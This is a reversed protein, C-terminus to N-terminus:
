YDVEVECYVDKSFIMNPKGDISHHEFAFANEDKYYLNEVITDIAGIIHNINEIVVMVESWEIELDNIDYQLEEKIEKSKCMPIMLKKEFIKLNIEQLEKRASERAFELNAMTFRANQNSYENLNLCERQKSSVITKLRDALFAGLEVNTSNQKVHIIYSTSM